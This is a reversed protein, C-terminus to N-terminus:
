VVVTVEKVAMEESAAGLLPHFHKCGVSIKYACEYSKGTVVEEFDPFEIKGAFCM